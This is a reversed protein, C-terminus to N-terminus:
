KTFSTNNNLTENGVVSPSWCVLHKFSCQQFSVYVRYLRMLNSDISCSNVLFWRCDVVYVNNKGELEERAKCRELISIKHWPDRSFSFEHSLGAPPFYATPRLFGTPPVEYRRLEFLSNWQACLVLVLVSWTNHYLLVPQTATHSLTCNHVFVCCWCLKGKHVVHLYLDV